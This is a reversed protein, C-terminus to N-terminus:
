PKKLNVNLKLPKWEGDSMLFGLDYYVRSPTTDFYGVLTLIGKDSVSPEQSAIPTKAVVLAIDIGKSAFEKFVEKLREPSFQDRFPKSAKAHLISYNGTVNADNFTLLTEKIIIEQTVAGPVKQAHAPASLFMVGVALAVFLALRCRLMERSQGM